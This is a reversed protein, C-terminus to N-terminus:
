GWKLKFMTADQPREFLWIGTHESHDGVCNQAVWEKVEFWKQHSGYEIDIRTYGRMTVMIDAIIEFDISKQMEKALSETIEKELEELLSMGM